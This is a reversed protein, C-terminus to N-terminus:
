KEVGIGLQKRAEEVSLVGAKVLELVRNQKDTESEGLAKVQKTNFKVWLTDDGSERQIFPGIVDEVMSWLPSVTNEYFAKQAVSYNSYTSADLGAKCGLLVPPVGFASCIRAETLSVVDGWEPLEVQERKMTLGGDLIMTSGRRNEGLASDVTNKLDKRQTDSLKAPTSISLGPLRLNNLLEVGVQERKLDGQVDHLCARLAGSCGLVSAYDPDRLVLMDTTPVPVDQTTEVRVVYAIIPREKGQVVQVVQTPLTQLAIVDTSNPNRPTWVYSVGTLLYRAVFASMFTNYTDHSTPHELLYAFESNKVVEYKDEGVQKVVELPAQSVSQTILKVCGHVTPHVAYCQELQTPDFEEFVDKSDSVLNVRGFLSGIDFASVQVVTDGGFLSGWFAM